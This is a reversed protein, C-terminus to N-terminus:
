SIPTEYQIQINDYDMLPIQVRTATPGSDHIMNPFSHIPANVNLSAYTHDVSKGFPMIMKCLSLCMFKCCSFIVVLVVIISTIVILGMLLKRGLEGIWAGLGFTWDFQDVRETIDAVLTKIDAVHNQLSKSHDSLNFCCMGQFDQCGHEHKLLLYDIAARNELIAKRAGQLDIMLEELAQSTHNLGKAVACALKALSRATHVALGPVGVLSAALSVIETTSLLNVHPNCDETLSITSRKVKTQHLGPEVSFMMIGLRTLACPGGSINGPIYTYTTNGCSFLWGVPLKVSYLHSPTSITHNCSMTNNVSTCKDDTRNCLIRTMNTSASPTLKVQKCKGIKEPNCTMQYCIDGQTINQTTIQTMNPWKEGICQPCDRCYEYVSFHQRVDHHEALSDNNSISFVKLLIEVPTPVAILCSTLIDTTSTMDALCFHSMNLVEVALHKWINTKVETLFSAMRKSRTYHKGPLNHSNFQVQPVHTESEDQEKSIVSSLEGEGSFVYSEPPSHNPCTITTSTTCTIGYTRQSMWPSFM